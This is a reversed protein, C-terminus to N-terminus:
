APKAAPPDPTATTSPATVAEPGITPAATPASIAARNTGARGSGGCGTAVAGLSVLALATALRRQRRPRIM